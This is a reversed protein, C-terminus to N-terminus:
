QMNHGHVLGLMMKVAVSIQGVIFVKNQCFANHYLLAFQSIRLILNAMALFYFISISWM